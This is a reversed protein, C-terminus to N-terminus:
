ENILFAIFSDFDYISKSQFDCSNPWVSPEPTPLPSSSTTVSALAGADAQLSPIKKHQSHPRGRDIGM